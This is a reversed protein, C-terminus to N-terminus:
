NQHDNKNRVEKKNLQFISSMCEVTQKDMFAKKTLSTLYQTQFSPCKKM